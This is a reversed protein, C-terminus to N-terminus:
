ILLHDNSPHLHHKEQKYKEVKLISRKKIKRNEKWDNVIKAYPLHQAQRKYRETMGIVAAERRLGLPQINTHIHTKHIQTCAYKHLQIQM